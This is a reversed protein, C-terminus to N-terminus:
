SFYNSTKDGWEESFLKYWSDVTRSIGVGERETKNHTFSIFGFQKFSTTKLSRGQCLEIVV